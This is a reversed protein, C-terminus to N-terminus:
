TTPGREMAWAPIIYYINGGLHLSWFSGIGFLFVAGPGAVTARALGPTAGSAGSAAHPASPPHAVTHLTRLRSGTRAGCALRGRVWMQVRPVSLAVSRPAAPGRQRDTPSTAPQPQLVHAVALPLAASAMRM